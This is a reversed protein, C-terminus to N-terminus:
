RAGGGTAGAGGYASPPAPQWYPRPPRWPGWPVQQDTNSGSESEALGSEGNAVGPRQPGWPPVPVTSFGGPERGAEDGRGWYRGPGFYPRNQDPFPYQMAGHYPLHRTSEDGDYLYPKSSQYPGPPAPLPGVGAEPEAAQGTATLLLLLGALTTRYNTM